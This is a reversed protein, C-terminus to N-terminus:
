LGGYRRARIKNKKDQAKETKFRSAVKGASTTSRKSFEFYRDSDAILKKIDSDPANKVVLDGALTPDQDKRRLRIEAPTMNKAANLKGIDSAMRKEYVALGKNLMEPSAQQIFLDAM